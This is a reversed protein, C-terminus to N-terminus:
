RWLLLIAVSAKFCVYHRKTITPLLSLLPRMLFDTCHVSPPIHNCYLLFGCLHILSVHLSLFATCLLPPKLQAFTFVSLILDKPRTLDSKRLQSHAFRCGAKLVCVVDINITCCSDLDTSHHPEGTTLKQVYHPRREHHIPRWLSLFFLQQWFLPAQRGSTGESINNNNILLRGDTNLRWAHWNLYHAQKEYDVQTSNHSVPSSPVCSTLSERNFHFNALVIVSDLPKNFNLHSSWLPEVVGWLIWQM